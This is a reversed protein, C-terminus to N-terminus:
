GARLVRSVAGTFVQMSRPPHSVMGLSKLALVGWDATCVVLNCFFSTAFIQAQMNLHPFGGGVFFFVVGKEPASVGWCMCACIRIKILGQSCSLCWWHDRGWLTCWQVESRSQFINGLLTLVASIESM